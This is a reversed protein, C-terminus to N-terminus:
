EVQCAYGLRCAARSFGVTEGAPLFLKAAWKGTGPDSFWYRQGGFNPLSRNLCFTMRPM